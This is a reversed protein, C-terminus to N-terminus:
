MRETTADRTATSKSTQSGTASTEASSKVGDDTHVQLGFTIRGSGWTM